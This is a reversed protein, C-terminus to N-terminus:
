NDGIVGTVKNTCVSRVDESDILCFLTEMHLCFVPFDVIGYIANILQRDNIAILPTWFM